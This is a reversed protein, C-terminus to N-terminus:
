NLDSIENDLVIEQSIDLHISSYTMDNCLIQLSLCLFVGMDVPFFSKPDEFNVSLLFMIVFSSSHLSFLSLRNGSSFRKGSESGTPLEFIQM